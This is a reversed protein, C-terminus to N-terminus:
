PLDKFWVKIQGCGGNWTEKCLENSSVIWPCHIRKLGEEVCKMTNMWVYKLSKIKTLATMNNLLEALSKWVFRGNCPLLESCFTIIWVCAHFHSWSFKLKLLLVLHSMQSVYLQPFTLSQRPWRDTSNKEELFDKLDESALDFYSTLSLYFTNDSWFKQRSGLLLDSPDRFM